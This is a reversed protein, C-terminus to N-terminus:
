HSPEITGIRRYYALAGAIPHQLIFAPTYIGSYLHYVREYSPVQENEPLRLKGFTAPSHTNNFGGMVSDCQIYNKDFLFLITNAVFSPKLPVIRSVNFEQKTM